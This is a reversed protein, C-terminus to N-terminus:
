SVWLRAYRLVDEKTVGEEEIKPLIKVVNDFSEKTIKTGEKSAVFGLIFGLPNKYKMFPVIMIRELISNINAESLNIYRETTLKRAIADIAILVRDEPSMDKRRREKDLVSVGGSLLEALKGGGSVRTYSDAEAKFDPQDDEYYDM